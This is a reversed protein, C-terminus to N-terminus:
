VPWGHVLDPLRDRWARGAHDTVLIAGERVGEDAVEVRGVGYRSMLASIIMAGAPLLRARTPNLLFQEALVTAPATTLVDIAEDLREATLTRDSVGGSTVKLLNTATGGVAVVVTPANELADTMAEQALMRMQAIDDRSPPDGPSVRATLRGSGIPLGAARAPPAPGVAVFESSGGGIDLILTEETVPRGHAVGILTLYAEEVHSVVHLAGHTSREVDAVIRAADAAKRIPETGIFTVSTAGLRRASTAYDVLTEVLAARAEVGLAGHDDVRAGLGLFASTDIL